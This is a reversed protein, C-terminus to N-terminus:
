IREGRAQLRALLADAADGGAQRGNGGAGVVIQVAGAAFHITTGGVGGRGSGLPIIAEKGHLLVPTGSGFDGVGGRDFSPLGGIPRNYAATNIGVNSQIFGAARYARDVADIGSQVALIREDVSLLAMAARGASTDLGQFAGAYADVAPKGQQLAATTKGVEGGVGQEAMRQTEANFAAWEDTAAKTEAALQKLNAIAGKTYKDSNQLAYEYTAAARDATDQLSARAGDGLVDWNIKVGKLKEEAVAGIAAYHNFFNRNTEDLAARATAAWNRIEAELKQTTTGSQALKEAELDRWLKSVAQISNAQDALAKTEKVLAKEAEAIAKTKAAAAATQDATYKAFQAANVGIAAANQADLAGIEKLHALDKLQWGELAAGADEQLKQM